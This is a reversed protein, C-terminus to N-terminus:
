GPEGPLLSLGRNTDSNNMPLLVVKNLMPKKGDTQKLVFLPSTDGHIHRGIALRQESTLSFLADSLLQECSFTGGKSTAAENFVWRKTAIYNWTLSCVVALVKSANITVLPSFHDGAIQVLSWVISSNIVLGVANVAVFRVFRHPARSTQGRFTLCGNLIYSNIVAALFGCCTFGILWLGSDHHTLLILLNLTAFDLATNVLGVIAFLM